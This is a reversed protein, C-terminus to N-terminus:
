KSIINHCKTESVLRPTMLTKNSGKRSFEVGVIIETFGGLDDHVWLITVGTMTLYMHSLCDGQWDARLSGGLECLVIRLKVCFCVTIPAPSSGDVGRGNSLRSRKRHQWRINQKLPWHLIQLRNQQQRTFVWLVKGAPPFCLGTAWRSMFSKAFILLLSHHGSSAQRIAIDARRRQQM